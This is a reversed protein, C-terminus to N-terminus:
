SLLYAGIGLALGAGVWGVPGLGLATTMAATETAATAGLMSGATAGAMAGGVGANIAGGASPGPDQNAPIDKDMQGFTGAAQNMGGMAKEMPNTVQYM